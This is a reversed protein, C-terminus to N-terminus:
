WEEIATKYQKWHVVIILENRCRNSYAKSYIKLSILVYQMTKLGNGQTVM